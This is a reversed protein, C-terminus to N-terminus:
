KLPDGEQFLREIYFDNGERKLAWLDKTSKHILTEASVRTFADLQNLSGVKVRPPKLAATTVPGSATKTPTVIQPTTQFFSDLGSSSGQIDGLKFDSM